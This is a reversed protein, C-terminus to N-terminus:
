RNEWSFDPKNYHKESRITREILSLATDSYTCKEGHIIDEGPIMLSDARMLFTTKKDFLSRIGVGTPSDRRIVLPIVEVVGKFNTKNAVYLLTQDACLIENNSHLNKRINSKYIRSLEIEKLYSVSRSSYDPELMMKNLVQVKIQCIDGIGAPKAQKRKFIM